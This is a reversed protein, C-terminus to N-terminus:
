LIVCCTAVIVGGVVTNTPVYSGFPWKLLEPQDAALKEPVCEKYEGETFPRLNDHRLAAQLRTREVSVRREILLFIEPSMRKENRQSWALLRKRRAQRYHHEPSDYPHVLSPFWQAAVVDLQKGYVHTKAPSRSARAVFEQERFFLSYTRRWNFSIKREKCDVAVDVLETDNVMDFVKIYYPPRDGRGISVMNSMNWLYNDRREGRYNKLFRQHDRKWMPALRDAKSKSLVVPAKQQTEQLYHELFPVWGRVSGAIRCGDIKAYTRQKFIAISGDDSFCDFVMPIHIYSAMPPQRETHIDTYHLDVFTDPIVGSRFFLEVYNCFARSISRCTSWLFNVDDVAAFVILWIEVPLASAPM